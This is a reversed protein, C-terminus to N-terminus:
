AGLNCACEAPPVCLQGCALAYIVAMPKLVNGLLAVTNICPYLAHCYCRHVPASSLSWVMHKHLPATCSAGERELWRRRHMSVSSPSWKGAADLRTNPNSPMCIEDGFGVQAYDSIVVTNEIDSKPPSVHFQILGIKAKEVRTPGGATKAAQLLKFTTVHCM